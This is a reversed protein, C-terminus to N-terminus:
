NNPLKEIDKPDKSTDKAALPRASSDPTTSKEHLYVYASGQVMHARLSYIDRIYQHVNPASGDKARVLEAGKHKSLLDKFRNVEEEPSNELAAPVLIRIETDPDLSKVQAIEQEVRAFNRVPSYILYRRDPKSTTTSEFEGYKGTEPLTISEGWDLIEAIKRINNTAGEHIATYRTEFSTIRGIIENHIRRRERQSANKKTDDTLYEYSNEKEDPEYNQRSAFARDIVHLFIYEADKSGITQFDTGGEISQEQLPASAIYEEVLPRDERVLHVNQKKLAPNRRLRDIDERLTFRNDETEQVVVRIEAKDNAKKLTNIKRFLEPINGNRLYLIHRNSPDAEWGKQLVSDIVGKANKDIREAVPREDKEKPNAVPAPPVSPIAPQTTTEKPKEPRETHWWPNDEVPQPQVDPTTLGDFARGSGPNIRNRRSDASYRSVADVGGFLLSYWGAQKMGEWVAQNVIMGGVDGVKEVHFLSTGARTAGSLARQTLANGGHGTDIHAGDRFFHFFDSWSKAGYHTARYAPDMADWGNRAADIDKQEIQYHWHDGIFKVGHGDSGTAHFQDAGIGVVHDGSIRAGELQARVLEQKGHFYGGLGGGVVGGVIGAIGEVWAAKKQVDRFEKAAKGGDVVRAASLLKNMQMNIADEDLDPRSMVIQDRLRGISGESLGEALSKIRKTLEAKEKEDDSGEIKTHRLDARIADLAYREEPNLSTADQPSKSRNGEWESALRQADKISEVLEDMAKYAIGRDNDKTGNRYLKRNRYLLDFGAKALVSGAVGGAMVALAPPAMFLSLAVYAVGSCALGKGTDKVRERIFRPLKDIIGKSERKLQISGDKSTFTDLDFKELAEQWNKYGASQLMMEAHMSQLGNRALDNILFLKQRPSIEYGERCRESLKRSYALHLADYRAQKEYATVAIRGQSRVAERSSPDVGNEVLIHRERTVSPRKGGVEDLDFELDELTYDQFEITYEEFAKNYDEPQKLQESTNTRRFHVPIDPKHVPPSVPIRGIREGTEGRGVTRRREDPAAGAEPLVIPVFQEVPM